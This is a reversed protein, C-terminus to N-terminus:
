EFNKSSTCLVSSAVQTGSGSIIYRGIIVIATMGAFTASLGNGGGDVGIRRFGCYAVLHSTAIAAHFECGSNVFVGGGAAPIQGM